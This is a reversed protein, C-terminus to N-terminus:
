SFSTHHDLIEVPRVRFVEQSAITPRATRDDVLGQGLAVTRGIQVLVEEPRGHLVDLLEPLCSRMLRAVSCSAVRM